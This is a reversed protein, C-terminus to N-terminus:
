EYGTVPIGLLDNFRGTEFYYLLSNDMRLTKKGCRNNHLIMGKEVKIRKDSFCLYINYRSMLAFSLHALSTTAIESLNSDLLANTDAYNDAKWMGVEHISNYSCSDICFYINKSM